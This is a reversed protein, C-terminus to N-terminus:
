ALKFLGNLSDAAMTYSQTHDITRFLFFDTLKTPCMESLKDTTDTLASGCFPYTVSLIRLETTYHWPKGGLALFIKDGLNGAGGFPVGSTSQM